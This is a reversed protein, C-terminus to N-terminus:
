TVAPEYQQLQLPQLLLLLQQYSSVKKYLLVERWEDCCQYTNTDALSNKMLPSPLLFSFPLPLGLGMHGFSIDRVLSQNGYIEQNSSWGM